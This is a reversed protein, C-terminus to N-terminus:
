VSYLQMEGLMREAIKGGDIKYTGSEIQLQIHAVRGTDIDPLAALQAKADQLERAKPSLVVKDASPHEREMGTAAPPHSSSDHARQTHAEFHIYASQDNVKM